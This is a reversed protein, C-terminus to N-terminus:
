NQSVRVARVSYGEYRYDFNYGQLYSSTFYMYCAHFSYDKDLTRSLYRGWNGAGSLSGSWYTGAAPLFLTNGNPGTVLRGDVGNQTTWTWTCSNVLEQQQEITPMRWSTGWNMYAADDEPDLETKDDTFGNFGDSSNFCYKTMTNMNGKCWKYTSWNYMNKTETEGWAFYDGYAEPTSAGVNTTAWLTGSPLGLDVYEHNPTPASGGLIINIITNVDAINVEHDGNVDGATLNGSGNLIINIVANVDAINVEHDGNVDGIISSGGDRSIIIHTARNGSGQAIYYGYEEHEIYADEPYTIACKEFTISEGIREVVGNIDAQVNDFRLACLEGHGNNMIGKAAQVTIDKITLRTCVLYIGRLRSDFYLSGDGQITISKSNTGDLSMAVFGTTTLKCEGQIVITADETVRIPSVYDYPTESSYEVVANNLTLTRSNIDWTITGSKIFPCDFHGNEDPSIDCVAITANACMAVMFFSLLFLYYKKM